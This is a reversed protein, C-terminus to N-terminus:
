LLTKWWTKTSVCVFVCACVCVCVCVCACVRKWCWCISEVMLMMSALYTHGRKQLLWQPPSLGQLWCASLSRSWLSLFFMFWSPKESFIPSSASGSCTFLSLTSLCIYCFAAFTPSVSHTLPSPSCLCVSQVSWGVQDSCKCCFTFVPQFHFSARPSYPKVHWLM